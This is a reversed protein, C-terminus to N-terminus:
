VSGDTIRKAPGNREKECRKQIYMYKIGEMCKFDVMHKIPEPL